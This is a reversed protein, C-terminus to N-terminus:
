SFEQMQFFFLVTVGDKKTAAENGWAENDHWGGV